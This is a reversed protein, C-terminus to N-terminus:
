QVPLFIETRLQGPKTKMPNNVYKEFIPLERLEYRDNLEWKKFITNYLETHGAFPGQYNFVAYKGGIIEKVGIKGKAPIAKDITICVDSRLKSAETLDIDNHYMIIFDSPSTVANQEGAYKILRQWVELYKSLSYLGMLRTYIVNINKLVVFGSHTIAQVSTIVKQRITKQTNSITKNIRYESPTVKYLQRFAKSLSSPFEFGVKYAIDKISSNTYGLLYAAREVRNRSIYEALPENHYEKFIRHFHYESFNSIAALKKLDLDEDLHEDIYKTVANLRMVYDDERDRNKGM